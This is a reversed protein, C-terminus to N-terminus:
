FNLGHKHNTVSTETPAQIRRDTYVGHCPYIHPLQVSRTTPEQNINNNYLDINFLILLWVMGMVYINITAKKVIIEGEEDTADNSAECTFQSIDELGLNELNIVSEGPIKQTNIFWVSLLILGGFSFFRRSYMKCCYWALRVCGMFYLSIFLM